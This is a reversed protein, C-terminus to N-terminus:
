WRIQLQSASLRSASQSKEGLAVADIRRLGPFATFLKVTLDRLAAPRACRFRWIATLEGHEEKEEHEHAHKAEPKAMGGSQNQGAPAETARAATLASGLVPADLRSDLPTCEAAPSPRFQSASDNLQTVMRRVAQREREIRPAREFGLLNDLPSEFRITLVDGEVAIELQAQGHVHAEGAVLAASASFLLAALLTHRHFYRFKM